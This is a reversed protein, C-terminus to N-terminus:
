RLPRGREFRIKRRYTVLDTAANALYCSFEIAPDIDSEDVEVCLEEQSELKRKLNWGTETMNASGVIAVSSKDQQYHGLREKDVEFIYLKAHLREHFLIDFGRASLREWEELEEVKPPLTIISVSGKESKVEDLIHGIPSFKNLLSLSIFPSILTISRHPILRRALIADRLFRQQCSKLYRSLRLTQKEETPQPLPADAMSKANALDSPPALHEEISHEGARYLYVDNGRRIYIARYATRQRSVYRIWADPIGNYRHDDADALFEGEDDVLKSLVRRAFNPDGHRILDGFFEKCIHVAM